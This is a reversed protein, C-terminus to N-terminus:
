AAARTEAPNNRSLHLAVPTLGVPESRNDEHVILGGFASLIKRAGDPGSLLAVKALTEAELATRGRATAGILGPWCPEGTSPDLLHHAPSGDGRRWSRVDLGSTAIGGSRLRLRHPRRGSAPHQVLIEYPSRDPAQGGIRIDGGCSIMFRSYGALSEAVLDAALGKGIGGSDFKLGAPRRIVGQEDDVSFGAWRRAGDASAPKRDPASRLAEHVPIGARGARSRRYGSAEIEDLLTPDVLGGSRRAAWVGAKVATRLLVSAPMETGPYENMATLESDPRFRSLRRDFDRMFREAADAAEEPSPLGPEVPLGIMIRIRAGMADFERDCSDTQVGSM